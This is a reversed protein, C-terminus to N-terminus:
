FDPMSDTKYYVREFLETLLILDLILPAALLSDECVNYLVLTHQGGLFIESCYEDM